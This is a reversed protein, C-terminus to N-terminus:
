PRYYKGRKIMKLPRKIVNENTRVLPVECYALENYEVWVNLLIESIYGFIRQEQVCYGSLDVRKELHGLVDFLWTCYNDALDKKAIFINCYFANDRMLVDDFMDVYENYREALIGRTIELDKARGWGAEFAERVSYERWFFKKPVIIASDRLRKAIDSENLFFRESNSLPNKTLFRRYHCLGVVDSSKDNKWMWYLATLECYNPNKSSINNGEDDHLCNLREVALKSGVQIPRYLETNKIAPEQNHTAVYIATSHGNSNSVM